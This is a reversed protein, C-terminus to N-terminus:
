NKISGSESLSYNPQTSTETPNQSSYYAIVAMPLTLTVVAITTGLLSAWKNSPPESVNGSPSSPEM